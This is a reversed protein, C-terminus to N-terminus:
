TPGDGNARILGPFQAAMVAVAMNRVWQREDCWWGRLTELGVDNGNEWLHVANYSVGLEAAFKRLSKDGRVNHIVAGTELSNRMGPLILGKLNRTLPCNVCCAYYPLVVRLM